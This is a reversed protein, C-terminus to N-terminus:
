RVNGLLFYVLFIAFSVPRDRIPKPRPLPLEPSGSQAVSGVVPCDKCGPKKAAVSSSTSSAARRAEPANSEYQRVEPRTRAANRRVIAVLISDIAPSIM